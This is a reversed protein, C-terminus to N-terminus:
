EKVAYIKAHKSLVQKVLDLDRLTLIPQASVPHYSGYYKEGKFERYQRLVIEHVGLKYHLINLLTVSLNATPFQFISTLYYTRTTM